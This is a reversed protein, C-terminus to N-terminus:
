AGKSIIETKLIKIFEDRIREASVIEIRSSTKKMSNILPQCLKFKLKSSFYAARMMRVPDDSFTEDPDMPTILQKSLLDRLGNYPDYLNGFNDPLLDVAMANVTFDRRLLDGELNTYTVKNPKRSDKSYTEKRAAAIEIPIPKSPIHATSFRHFPVIKPVGMQKAVVKAFEIGDGIVMIDIEKLEKGISARTGYAVSALPWEPTLEYMKTAQESAAASPQQFQKIIEARETASYNTPM